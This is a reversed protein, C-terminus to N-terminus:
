AMTKESFLMSPAPAAALLIAPVSRAFAAIRACARFPVVAASNRADSARMGSIPAIVVAIPM